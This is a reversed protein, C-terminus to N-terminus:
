QVEVEFVEAWRHHDDEDSGVLRTGLYEGDWVLIVENDSLTDGLLKEAFNYADSEKAFTPNAVDEFLTTDGGFKVQYVKM